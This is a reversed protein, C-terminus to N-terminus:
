PYKSEQEDKNKTQSVELASVNKFEAVNKTEVAEEAAAVETQTSEKHTEGNLAQEKEEKEEEEEKGEKKVKIAVETDQNSHSGSQIKEIGHNQDEFFKIGDQDGM